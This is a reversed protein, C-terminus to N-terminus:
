RTAGTARPRRAPEVLAAAHPAAARCMDTLLACGNRALLPIANLVREQRTGRPWLAARLTAVDRMGAAERRKVAAVLRRELRDIRHQLSQTAGVVAPGVGLAEGEDGLADPLLAVSERLEALVRVTDESMADRALRGELADPVEV